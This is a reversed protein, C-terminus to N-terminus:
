EGKTVLPLYVFYTIGQTITPTPTFTPAMTSTATPTSTLRLTPTATTTSTPTATPMETAPATATATATATAPQGPGFKQVRRQEADAVFVNGDEDVGIGIPAHFQGDASGRGGFSTVFEGEATFKQVRYNNRDVVFISSGADVAIGTPYWFEGDSSGRRGWQMIFDGDGTFKQVRNDRGDTVYVYGDEDVAIGNIWQFQDEGEGLGGWRTLFEGSATFKQVRPVATARGAEDVVYGIDALYVHDNSDVALGQPQSIEGPGWGRNGWKRIFTGAPSFVQVRRNGGDLVFIDGGHNVALGAISQFQGDGTGECGAGGSLDCYSGFRFRFNGAGDFVRVEPGRVAVYVNGQHDVTLEQPSELVQEGAGRSGWQTLLAIESSFKQIRLNWTDAVYVDGDASVAIGWRSTTLQGEADRREGWMGLFTGEATFKQLSYDATLFLNGEEDTAIGYVFPMQPDGRGNDVPHPDWRRIFTGASTFVQIRDYSSRTTDAVHINNQEDVAIADPIYFQGNSYGEQGWKTVFAGDATFKQVRHNDRDTVYVNGADDVAIGAPAAFQGDGIELPGVGDPDVCGEGTALVCRSGWEAVFTGDSTFKQVRAEFADAVYIHGDPGVAIDVPEGFQGPASGLEGWTTLFEGDGTFKQIRFNKEDAVYVNGAQDVAIGKPVNFQGTPAQDGWSLHFVYSSNTAASGSPWLRPPLGILVLIVLCPGLLKKATRM